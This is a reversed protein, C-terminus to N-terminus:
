IPQQLLKLKQKKEADSIESNLIKQELKLKAKESPVAAALKM